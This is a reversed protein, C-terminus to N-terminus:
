ENEKYTERLRRGKAGHFTSDPNGQWRKKGLQEYIVDLTVEELAELQRTFREEELKKDRM